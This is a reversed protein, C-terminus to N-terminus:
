SNHAVRRTLVLDFIRKPDIADSQRYAAPTRKGGRLTQSDRDAAGRRFQGLEVHRLVYIM